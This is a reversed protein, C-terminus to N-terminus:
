KIVKEINEIKKTNKIFKYIINTKDENNIKSFDYELDGYNETFNFYIETCKQDPNRFAFEKFYDLRYFPDKLKSKTIKDEDFEKKMYIIRYIFAKGM